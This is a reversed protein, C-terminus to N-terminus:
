ALCIEHSKVTEGVSLYYLHGRQASPTNNHPYGVTKNTVVYLKTSLFTLCIYLQKIPM